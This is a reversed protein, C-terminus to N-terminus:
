DHIGKLYCRMKVTTGEVKRCDCSVKRAIAEVESFRDELGPALVYVMTSIQSFMKGLIKKKMEGTFREIGFILDFEDLWGNTLYLEDPRPEFNETLLDICNLDQNIQVGLGKMSDQLGGCDGCVLACHGDLKSKVYEAFKQRPLRHCLPQFFDVEADSASELIEEKLVRCALIKPM